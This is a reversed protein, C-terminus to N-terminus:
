VAMFTSLDINTRTIGTFSLSCFPLLLSGRIPLRHKSYNKGGECGFRTTDCAGVYRVMIAPYVYNVFASPTSRARPRVLRERVCVGSGKVTGLSSWPAEAILVHSAGSSTMYRRNRRHNRWQSIRGACRCHARAAIADGGRRNRATGLGFHTRWSTM